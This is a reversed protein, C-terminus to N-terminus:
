RLVQMRSLPWFTFLAKGLLHDEPVFGWYRSDSSNPRNDGMMFYEGEPVRVPGFQSYDRQVNVGPFTVHVGNAFVLGDRIEIEDGPLGVCRKVFDKNDGEKVSRFVVIEGRKPLTFRYIFKNVFLRDGIQMTPIMSGSPILSTQIIYTKILLAMALAVLLTEALDVFGHVFSNRTRLSEKYAKWRNLSSRIM